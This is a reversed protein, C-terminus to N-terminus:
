SAEAEGAARERSWKVDLAAIEAFAKDDGAGWRGFLAAVAERQQPSLKELWTAIGTLTDQLGKRWVELEAPTMETTLKVRQAATTPPTEGKPIIRNAM